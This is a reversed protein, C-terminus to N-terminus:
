PGRYSGFQRGAEDTHAAPRWGNADSSPEIRVLVAASAKTPAVATATTITPQVDLPEDPVPPVDTSPREFENPSADV